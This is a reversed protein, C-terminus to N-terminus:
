RCALVRKIRGEPEARAGAQLHSGGVGFGIWTWSNRAGLPQLPTWSNHVSTSSQPGHAERECADPAWPARNSTLM